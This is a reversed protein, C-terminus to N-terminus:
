SHKSLGHKYNKKIEAPSLVKNYIKVEDISMIQKGTGGNSSDAIVIPSTNTQINGDMASSTTLTEITFPDDTVRYLFTAAGNYTAVLYQWVGYTLAGGYSRRQTGDAEWVTFEPMYINDEQTRIEWSNNGKRIM